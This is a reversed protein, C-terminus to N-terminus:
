PDKGSSFVLREFEKGCGDCKFEFIPMRPGRIRLSCGGGSPTNLEATPGFLSSKITLGGSEKILKMAFPDAIIQLGDIQHTEDGEKPEDLALGM